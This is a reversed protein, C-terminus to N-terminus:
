DEKDGNFMDMVSPDLLYVARRRDHSDRERIVVDKKFTLQGWANMERIFRSRRGRRTEDSEHSSDSLLLDLEHTDLAERNLTVWANIPTRLEKPIGTKQVDSIEKPKRLRFLGFTLATLAMCALLLNRKDSSSTSVLPPTETGQQGRVPSLSRTQGKSFHLVDGAPSSSIGSVQGLAVDQQLGPLSPDHWWTWVSDSRVLMGEEAAVPIVVESFNTPGESRWSEEKSWTWLNLENDVLHVQKNSLWPHGTRGTMKRPPMDAAQWGLPGEELIINNSDLLYLAGEHVFPTSKTPWASPSIRCGAPTTIVGSTAHPQALFSTPQWVVNFWTNYMGYLTAINQPRTIEEENLRFFFSISIGKKPVALFTRLADDKGDMTVCGGHLGEELRPESYLLMARKRRESAFSPDDFEWRETYQGPGLNDEGKNMSQVDDDSWTSGSLVLRDVSVAGHNDWQHGFSAGVLLSNYLYNLSKSKGQFVLKGDLWAKTENDEDRSFALHHWVHPTIEAIGPVFSGTGHDGLELYPVVLQLSHPTEALNELAPAPTLTTPENSEVTWWSQSTLAHLKGRHMWIERVGELSNLGEMWVQGLGEPYDGEWPQELNRWIWRQSLHSWNNVVSWAAKESVPYVWERTGDGKLDVDLVFPVHAIEEFITSEELSGSKANLTVARVVSTMPNHTMLEIRSDVYRPAHIQVEGLLDSSRWTRVVEGSSTKVSKHWLGQHDAGVIRLHVAGDEEQSVDVFWHSTLQTDEWWQPSEWGRFSALSLGVKGESKEHLILAQTQNKVDEWLWANTLEFAEKVLVEATGDARLLELELGRRKLSLVGTGPSLTLNEPSGPFAHELTFLNNRWRRVEVRDPSTRQVWLVKEEEDWVLYKIGGQDLSMTEWPKLGWPTNTAVFMNSLNGVLIDELGDQDFDGHTGLNPVIPLNEFSATSKWWMHNPRSVFPPEVQAQLLNGLVGLGSTVMLAFVRHLSNAFSM